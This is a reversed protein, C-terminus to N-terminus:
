PLRVLFVKLISAILIKQVRTYNNYLSQIPLLLNLPMNVDVKRLPCIYQFYSFDTLANISMVKEIAHLGEINERLLLM